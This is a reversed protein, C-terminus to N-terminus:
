QDEILLGKIYFRGKLTTATGSVKLSATMTTTLGDGSSPSWVDRGGVASKTTATQTKLATANGTIGFSVQPQVTVASAATVIVGVENPFFRAGSPISFTAIDDAATQLLDKEGSMLYNEQGSGAWKQVLSPVGIVHSDTINNTTDAGIAICNNAGNAIAWPGVAIAGYEGHCESYVGVATGTDISVSGVGIAVSGNGSVANAGVSVSEPSFVKASRGIVVSQPTNSIGSAGVYQWVADGDTTNTLRNATFSPPSGASTGATVCRYFGGSFVILDNAVYAHSNQRAAPESDAANLGIVIDYQKAATSEKGIAIASEGTADAGNCIAVASDGSAIVGSGIAVAAGNSAAANVGLATANTASANALYGLATGNLAAASSTDGVATTHLGTADVNHGIAIAGEESAKASYGIAVSYDGAACDTAVSRGAQLDVGNPHM